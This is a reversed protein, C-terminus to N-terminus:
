DNRVVVLVFFNALKAVGVEGPWAWSFVPKWWWMQSLLCIHSMSGLNKPRRALMGSVSSWDWSNTKRNKPYRYGM